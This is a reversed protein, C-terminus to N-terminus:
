LLIARGSNIALVIKEPRYNIHEQSFVLAFGKSLFSLSCVLLYISSEPEIYWRASWSIVHSASRKTPRQAQYINQTNTTFDKSSKDYQAKQLGFEWEFFSAMTGLLLNHDHLQHNKNAEQPARPPNFAHWALDHGTQAPIHQTLTRAAGRWYHNIALHRPGVYKILDKLWKLIPSNAPSKSERRNAQHHYHYTNTSPTRMPWQYYLRGIKVIWRRGVSILLLM